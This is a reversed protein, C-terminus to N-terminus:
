PDYDRYCSSSDNSIGTVLAVLETVDSLRSERIVCRIGKKSQQRPADAHPRATTRLYVTCSNRLLPECRQLSSM